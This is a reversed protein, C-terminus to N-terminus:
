ARKNKKEKTQSKIQKNAKLPQREILTGHKDKKVLEKTDKYRWQNNIFLVEHGSLTCTIM